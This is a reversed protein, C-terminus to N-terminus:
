ARLNIVQDCWALEREMLHVVVIIIKGEKALKKLLKIIVAKSQVDQAALPEDLLLVDRDRVIAHAISVRAREGGSLSLVSREALKLIGLDKLVNDINAHATTSLGLEMIQRVTFGLSYTQNQLVVSQLQSRQLLTMKSIEVGDHAISGKTIQLGGAMASILSSKGTGNAGVLGTISANKFTASFNKLVPQGDREISVKSVKIMEM